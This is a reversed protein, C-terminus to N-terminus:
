MSMVKFTLKLAVASKRYVIIVSNNVLFCFLAYIQDFDTGM